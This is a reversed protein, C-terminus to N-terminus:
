QNFGKRSELYLKEMFDRSKKYGHKSSKRIWELGETTNKPIGDGQILKIGLDYQAKANGSKADIYLKDFSDQSLKNLYDIAPQYDNLSSKRILEM